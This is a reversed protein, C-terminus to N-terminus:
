GTQLFGNIMNEVYELPRFAWPHNENWVAPFLIASGPKEFRRDCEACWSQVHKAYDDILLSQPDALRWKHKATILEYKSLNNDYLWQVKGQYSTPHIDPTTLFVLHKCLPELYNILDHMWEMPQIKRWFVPDLRIPLWFDDMSSDWHNNETMQAKPYMYRQLSTGKPWQRFLAKATLQMPEGNHIHPLRRGARLHARIAELHFNAFVGDMDLYISHFYEIM